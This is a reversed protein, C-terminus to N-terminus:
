LATSPPARQPPRRSPAIAARDMQNESAFAATHKHKDLVKHQLDDWFTGRSYLSVHNIKKLPFSLISNPPFVFSGLCAFRESRGQLSVLFLFLFM